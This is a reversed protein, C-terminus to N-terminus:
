AQCVPEHSVTDVHHVGPNCSTDFLIKLQQTTQRSDFIQCITNRAEQGLSTRLASNQLLEGLAEALAEPNKQPILLGNHRHVVLEPIGSIDTSVVPLGTAMAEALVNPIGDRDGNDLIQCPLAFIACHQYLDRLREQTVSSKLHVIHQLDWAEILSRITPTVDGTVSDGPDGIIHCEFAHGQDRLLRCAEILYAFGKKEVFRGVSLILPITNSVARTPMFVQPSLGHYITHIPAGEPCSDNLYHRNADTCTVLFKAQRRKRQLLDGPNLSKVFIDKAHATFSFPLGTLHSVFMAITTTGHCFHAHLHKTGSTRSLLHHAIAGAQLFEKFFVKRPRREEPERYHWMMAIADKLVRLYRLPRHLALVRHAPWFSPVNACFWQLFPTGSLSTVPPLYTVPAQINNVTNHVKSDKPQKVSFLHLSLGLQELQYIENIIFSESIRPYEMLIYAISSTDKSSCNVRTETFGHAM